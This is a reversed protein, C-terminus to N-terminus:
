QYVRVYDIVFDHPFKADYIGKTGGWAGGIALNLILYHPQDFPWTDVTANEEKAYSFYLVDDYFFDIRDTRWEVAYIHFDEWPNRVSITYGKNTKKTHNYAKTHVNAHIKLSDYGVNELIDIEGCTPWGVEKISTGLMWIAPWTGRGVPVKAKVEFRGYTFTRTDVTVLSASTYKAGNFDEKIARITLKGNSVFANEKDARTYFQAENNRILGEEYGWKKPDPLGKYNFEDAWVLTKFEQASAPLVFCLTAIFLFLIRTTM